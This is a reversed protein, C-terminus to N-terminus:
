LLIYLLALLLTNDTKENLLILLLGMILATDSDIGISSKLVKNHSETAKGNKSDTRDQGKTISQNRNEDASRRSMERLQELAKTRRNLFDADNVNM